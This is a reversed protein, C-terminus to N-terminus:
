KRLKLMETIEQPSLIEVSFMVQQLPLDNKTPVANIADAVDMGKVLEGFVTYDGDLHPTGGQSKYINRQILSFKRGKKKEIVDLEADTQKKGAVFYIQSFYSSKEPNDNRGAGLAGKKHFLAPVIEAPIRKIAIDPHLKERDLITDDLEGGQSVFSQIVRNFLVKDYLGEKISKLFQDRHLPTKDYLLVTIDGKTTKFSVFHSQASSAHGMAALLITVILSKM